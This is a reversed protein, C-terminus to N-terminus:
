LFRDTAPSLKVGSFLNEEGIVLINLYRRYLRLCLTRMLDHQVLAKDECYNAIVLSHKRIPLLTAPNKCSLEFLHNITALGEEDDKYLYFWMDMLMTTAIRERKTSQGITVNAGIIGGSRVHVNGGSTINGTVGASSGQSM